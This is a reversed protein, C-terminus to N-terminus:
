RSARVARCRPRRARPGRQLQSRSSLSRPRSPRRQASPRSLCETWRRPSTRTGRSPTQGRRPTQLRRRASAPEVRAARVPPSRSVSVAELQALSSASCCKRGQKRDEWGSSRRRLRLAVPHGATSSSQSQQGPRGQRWWCQSHSLWTNSGGCEGSHRPRSQRGVIPRGSEPKRGRAGTRRSLATAERLRPRTYGRASRLRLWGCRRQTGVCGLPVFRSRPRRDRWDERTRLRRSNSGRSFRAQWRCPGTRPALWGLSAL